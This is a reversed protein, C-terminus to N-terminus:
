RGRKSCSEVVQSGAVDLKNQSSRITSTLIQWDRQAESSPGVDVAFGAIQSYSRAPSLQSKKWTSHTWRVTGEVDISTPGLSLTLRHREGRAFRCNNEVQVALGLYSFNLISGKGQAIYRNDTEGFDVRDEQRRDTSTPHLSDFLAQRAELLDEKQDWRSLLKQLRM